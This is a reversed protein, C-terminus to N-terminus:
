SLILQVVIAVTVVAFAGMWMVTKRVAAYHQELMDDPFKRRDPRVKELLPSWAPAGNETTMATLTARATNGYELCDICLSAIDAYRVKATPLDGGDDKLAFVNGEPGDEGMLGPRIITFDVATQSRIAREGEYNWAKAMSGLMNILISFFGTPDEGKGTIRVLRRCGASQCAELLNIVGMYNVQKAHSPDEDAVNRWLDAIKSRRTAGYLALCADCGQVLQQLTEPKGVDGQIVRVGKLNALYAAM